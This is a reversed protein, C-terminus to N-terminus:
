LGKQIIQLLAEHLHGNSALIQRGYLYNDGGHFDSVTGGAERVLLMGAAVDWPKLNHEFFADYRGCAVAALDLAASGMRRIAHTKDMIEVVTRLIKELQDRDMPPFGTGTLAQILETRQSVSIPNDNLFAGKGKTARFMDQTEPAYVYGLKAEDEFILAVSISYHPVGHTFNTTGDIPDIIWTFGNESPQNESEENVFGSGPLILKCGEKLMKEATVDVYSFPDKRGKFEVQDYSFRAFEASAFQGTRRILHQVKEDVLVLDVTKM